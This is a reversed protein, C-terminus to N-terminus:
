LISSSMKGKVSMFGERRTTSGAARSRIRVAVAFIPKEVSRITRTLKELGGIGVPVLKRVRSSRMCRPCELLVSYWNASYIRCDPSPFILVAKYKGDLPVVPNGLITAM